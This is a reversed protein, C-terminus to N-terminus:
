LCIHKATEHKVFGKNGISIHNMAWITFQKIELGMYSMLSSEEECAHTNPLKTNGISIHNIHKIELGIYSM